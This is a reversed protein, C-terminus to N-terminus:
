DSRDTCIKLVLIECALKAVSKLHSLIQLLSMIASKRILTSTFYNKFDTLKTSSMLIAAEEHHLNGFKAKHVTSHLTNNNGIAPLILIIFWPAGESGRREETKWM